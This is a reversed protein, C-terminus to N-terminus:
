KDELFEKIRFYPTAVAFMQGFSQVGELHTQIGLLEGKMNYLASGSFGNLALTDSHIEGHGLFNVRGVSLTGKHGMPSGIYFVAEGLRVKDALKLKSFKATEVEMLMLDPDNEKRLVKVVRGSIHMLEEWCHGASLVKNTDYIVASCTGKPGELLVNRKVAQEILYQSLSDSTAPVHIYEIRTREVIQQGHLDPAVAFFLVLLIGIIVLWPWVKPDPYQHGCKDCFM